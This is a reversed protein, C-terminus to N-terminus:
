LIHCIHTTSNDPQQVLYVIHLFRVRPAQPVNYAYQACLYFVYNNVKGYCYLRERPSISERRLM